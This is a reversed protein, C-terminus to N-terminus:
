DNSSVGCLFSPAVRPPFVPVLVWGRSFEAWSPQECVWWFVDERYTTCVFLIGHWLEQTCKMFAFASLLWWKLHGLSRVSMNQVTSWRSQNEELLLSSHTPLQWILFAACCVGSCLGSKQKQPRPLSLFLGLKGSHNHDAAPTPSRPNYYIEIQYERVLECCCCCGLHLLSGHYLVM